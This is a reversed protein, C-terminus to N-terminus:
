NHSNRQFIDAGALFLDKIIPLYGGHSALHL